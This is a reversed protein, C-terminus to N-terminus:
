RIAPSRRVRGPAEGYGADILRCALRVQDHSALTIMAIDSADTGERTPAHVVVVVLGCPDGSGPEIVDSKCAEPDSALPALAGPEPEWAGADPEWSGAEGGAEVVGRTEGAAGSSGSAM